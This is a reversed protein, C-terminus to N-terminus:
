TKNGEEWPRIVDERDWLNCVMNGAVPQDVKPNTCTNNEFYMCNQCSAGKIGQPFTILDASKARKLALDQKVNQKIQDTKPNNM